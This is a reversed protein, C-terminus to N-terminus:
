NMSQAAPRRMLKVSHLATLAVSLWIPAYTGLQSSQLTEGLVGMAVLVLLVPEVYGLIGFLGMPLLKSARLYSTLAVMSLISLGALLMAM